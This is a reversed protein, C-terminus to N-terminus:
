FKLTIEGGAGGSYLPPGWWFMVDNLAICVVLLVYSIVCRASQIQRFSQTGQVMPELGGRFGIQLGVM